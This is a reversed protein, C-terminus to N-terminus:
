CVFCVEEWTFLTLLETSPLVCSLGKLVYDYQRSWECARFELNADVFEGLEEYMVPVCAGNPRLETVPLKSGSHETTWMFGGYEDFMERSLSRISRMAEYSCLDVDKLDEATLPIGALAKWFSPPFALDMQIEGRHAMGLLKGVFSYKALESSSTALSTNPVWVERREGMGVIHNQSHLFLPLAASQLEECIHIFVERYPGGNDAVGEGKFEFRVCRKQGGDLIGSYQLRLTHGRVGSLKEYLQHFLTATVDDGDGAKKLNRQARLRELEVKQIADPDVYEDEQYAVTEKSEEVIHTWFEKKTM